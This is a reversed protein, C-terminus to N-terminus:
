CRKIQREPLVVDMVHTREADTMTSWHTIESSSRLCGECFGYDDMCCVGICPSLMAKVTPKAATIASLKGLDIKIHYM